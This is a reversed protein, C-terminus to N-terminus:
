MHPMVTHDKTCPPILMPLVSSPKVKAVKAKKAAKVTTEALKPLFQSMMEDGFVTDFSGVLFANERALEQPLM